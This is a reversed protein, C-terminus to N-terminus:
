QEDHGQEEDLKAIMKRADERVKPNESGASFELARAAWYRAQIKDQPKSLGEHYLIALLLAPLPYGKSAGVRLRYDAARPYGSYRLVVTSTVLYSEDESRGDLLSLNRWLHHEKLAESAETAPYERPISQLLLLLPSGLISMLGTLCLYMFLKKRRKRMGAM